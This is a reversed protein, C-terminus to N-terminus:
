IGWSRKLRFMEERIELLNRLSIADDEAEELIGQKADSIFKDPDNYDWGKLIIDIEKIVTNLKSNVLDIALVKEISVTTM